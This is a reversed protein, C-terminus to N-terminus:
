SATPSQIRKGGITVSGSLIVMPVAGIERPGEIEVNDASFEGVKNHIWLGHRSYGKVHLTGFHVHDADIILVDAGNKYDRQQLRGNNEGQYSEISVGDSYIIYLGSNPGSRAVISGIRINRNLATGRRDKIGQIKVLYDPHEENHVGGIALISNITVNECGGQFKVGFGYNECEISGVMSDRLNVIFPNGTCNVPDLYRVNRVKVRDIQWRSGTLHIGGGIAGEISLKDITGENGQAYVAYLYTNRMRLDRLELNDCDMLHLTPTFGVVPDYDPPQLGGNGIIEGGAIHINRSREGRPTSIITCQQKSDLELSAGALDLHTNSKIILAEKAGTPASLRYRRGKELTVYGGRNLAAQLLSTDDIFNPGDIFAPHAEKGNIRWVLSVMAAVTSALFERRKV